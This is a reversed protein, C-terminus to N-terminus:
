KSRRSNRFLGFLGGRAKRLGQQSVYARGSMPSFVTVGPLMITEGNLIMYDKGVPFQANGILLVPNTPDTTDMGFGPVDVFLQQTSRELNAGLFKAAMRALETNDIVGTPADAGYMWVPVTEGNHGHTTWGFQTYNKSLVAAISYNLSSSHAWNRIELVDDDTITLGWWTQVVTKLEADDDPNSMKNVLGYSTIQMGSLPGILDAETTATYPTSTTYHGMKMGGTNHDPFAMVVTQGNEKAFDVAVKVADDFTIFDTIMYIPDNNHGAWDVQSGEVMLFFGDEDQSLLEIAKATMEAISPQTPRFELRDIEAEMHSDDFLGWVRGSTVADMGDKSDVVAYGRDELVEYLREGDTRRGSWTAGFSTTYTEGAPVLHRFGGGFAVDLNNYVMHEMIENDM